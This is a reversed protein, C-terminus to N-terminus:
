LGKLTEEFLDATAQQREKSLHAYIDMTMALTSHGLRDQLEKYNIGANILLSAHTHRFAHFAFNPLGAERALQALRQRLMSPVLYRGKRSSFVLSKKRWGKEKEQRVRYDRLLCVTTQDITVGRLSSPSKPANVGGINNLTKSIHVVGNTLDVDAWELALLEGIRCGTALALRCLTKFMVEGFDDPLQDLQALFDRLDSKSLFKLRTSGLKIPKPVTIHQAPNTPLLELAVGYQLVKKNYSHLTKYDAFVGKLRENSSTKAKAAQAWQNVVAQILGPTLRDLRENGFAPLLHNDLLGRLFRITNPKLGYAHNDYWMEALDRYAMSRGGRFVTSGERVFQEKRAEAKQRLEAKSSATLTTRVKKRTVRDTGLYISARYVKSGDQKILSTIKM